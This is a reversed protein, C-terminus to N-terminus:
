FAYARIGGIQKTTRVCVTVVWHAKPLTLCETNCKGQSLCEPGLCKRSLIHQVIGTTASKSPLQAHLQLSTLWGSAGPDEMILPSLGVFPGAVLPLTSARHHRCMTSCSGLCLSRTSVHM